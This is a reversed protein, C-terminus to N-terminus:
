EDDADAAPKEASGADNKVGSDKQDGVGTTVKKVTEEDDTPDKVATTGVPEKPTPSAPATAEHSIDGALAGDDPEEPLDQPEAEAGTGLVEAEGVTAEPPPVADDTGAGSARATVPASDVLV